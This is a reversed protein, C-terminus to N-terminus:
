RDPLLCPEIFLKQVEPFEAQIDKKIKEITSHLTQPDLDPKFVVSMVMVVEEPGMYMSLPRQVKVVQSSLTLKVIKDLTEENLTEGMLLSRSEKALVVSVSTLIIGIFISAVSDFYPNNYHHGLYIGLFAIML